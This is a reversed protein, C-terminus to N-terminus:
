KRRKEASRSRRRLFEEFSLESALHHLLQKRREPDIKGAFLTKRAKGIEEIWLEYEAGFQQEFQKRLRQALAPSQGGTSIAIQLSGRNVVSGYYFDCREPDDVVNCLVNQRKAQRYIKEHLEPSSTAAVVLFADRLDGPRFKRAKWRFKEERAWAQVRETAHPAVVCVDAGARLLSIIKEEGVAGAGVVVCRRGAIKLFAPFLNVATM